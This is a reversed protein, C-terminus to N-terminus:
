EAGFGHLPVVADADGAVLSAGRGDHRNEDVAIVDAGDPEVVPLPYTLEIRRDDGRELNGGSQYAGRQMAFAQQFGHAVFALAGGLFAKRLEAAGIRQQTLVQYAKRAIGIRLIEHLVD